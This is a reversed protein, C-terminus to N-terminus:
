GPYQSAAPNLAAAPPIHRGAPNERAHRDSSLGGPQWREGRGMRELEIEEEPTRTAIGRAIAAVIVVIGVAGLLAWWM